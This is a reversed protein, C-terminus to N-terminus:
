PLPVFGQDEAIAQGDRGLIWELYTAYVGDPEGDSYM